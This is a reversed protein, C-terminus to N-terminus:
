APNFQDKSVGCVPASGTTPFSISLCTTMNRRTMNMAAFAVSTNQM